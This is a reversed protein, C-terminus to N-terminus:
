PPSSSGHLSLNLAAEFSIVFIRFGSVCTGLDSSTVLKLVDALGGFNVVTSTFDQQSETLSGGALEFNALTSIFYLQSETLSIGAFESNALTSIFYPQSETLSGRALEDLNVLSLTIDSELETLLGVTM